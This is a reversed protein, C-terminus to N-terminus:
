SDVGKASGSIGEDPWVGDTRMQNRIQFARTEANMATREHEDAHEHLAEAILEAERADQELLAVQQVGTAVMEPTWNVSSKGGTDHTRKGRTVTTATSSQGGQHFFAHDQPDDEPDPPEEHGMLVRHGHHECFRMLGAQREDCGDWECIREPVTM